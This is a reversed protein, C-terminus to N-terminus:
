QRFSPLLSPRVHASIPGSEGSPSASATTIPVANSTTSSITAPSPQSSTEVPAVSVTPQSPSPNLVLNCTKVEQVAKQGNGDTVPTLVITCTATVPGDSSYFRISDGSMFIAASVCTMETTVTELIQSGDVQRVSLPLAYASFNLVFLCLVTFLTHKPSPM